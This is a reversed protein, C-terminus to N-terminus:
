IEADRFDLFLASFNGFSELRNVERKSFRPLKMLLGTPGHLREDFLPPRVFLIKFRM